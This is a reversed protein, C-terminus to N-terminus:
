AGAGDTGLRAEPLIEGLVRRIGEADAARALRELEPLRSEVDPDEGRTREAALIRAVATPRLTEFGHVLEEHLKEGPALRSFVLPVDAEPRLGSLTVLDRALDLIRIPEGMDLIFV